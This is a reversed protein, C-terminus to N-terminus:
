EYRLKFGHCKLIKCETDLGTVTLQNNDLWEPPFKLTLKDTECTAKIEPLPNESRDRNLIVALRLLIMLKLTVSRISVPLEDLITQKLNRRHALVLRSLVNQDRQSFGPLDSHEILYAGHKHYKNHAIVLGIEHLYSAWHLWQATTELDLQWTTAVQKLLNLATAEVQQAQRLDVQYRNALAM